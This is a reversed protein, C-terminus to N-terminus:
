SLRAETKEPGGDKGLVSQMLQQVLYIPQAEIPNDEVQETLLRTM